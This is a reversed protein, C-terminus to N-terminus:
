CSIGRLFRGEELLCTELYHGERRGGLRKSSGVRSISSLTTVDIVIKHYLHCHQSMSSVISAGELIGYARRRRTKQTKQTRRRRLRSSLARCPARARAYIDKTLAVSAHLCCASICLLRICEYLAASYVRTKFLGTQMHTHTHTWM